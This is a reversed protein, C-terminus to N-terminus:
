GRALIEAKIQEVQETVEELEKRYNIENQAISYRDIIKTGELLFKDVDESFFARMQKNILLILEALLLIEQNKSPVNYEKAKHNASFM